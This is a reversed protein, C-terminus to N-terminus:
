LDPSAFLAIAAQIAAERYRWNKIFTLVVRRVFETVKGRTVGILCLVEHFTEMDLPIQAYNWLADLDMSDIKKCMEISKSSSNGVRKLSNVIDAYAGSYIEDVQTGAKSEVSDSAAHVGTLIFNTDNKAAKHGLRADEVIAAIQVDCATVGENDNAKEKKLRDAQLTQLTCTVSWPIAQHLIRQRLDNKDGVQGRMILYLPEKRDDFDGYQSPGKLTTPNPIQADLLDVKKLIDDRDIDESTTLKELLNARQRSLLALNSTTSLDITDDGIGLSRLKLGFCEAHFRAIVLRNDAHNGRTVANLIKVRHTNAFKSRKTWINMPHQVFNTFKDWDYVQQNVRHLFRVIMGAGGGNHGSKTCRQILEDDFFGLARYAIEALVINNEPIKRVAAMGFIAPIVRQLTTLLNGKTEKEEERKIEDIHAAAITMDHWVPQFFKWLEGIVFCRYSDVVPQMCVGTNPALSLFWKYIFFQDAPPTQFSTKFPTFLEYAFCAPMAGAACYTLALMIMARKNSTTTDFFGNGKSYVLKECSDKESERDVLMKEVDSRVDETIQGESFKDLHTQMRHMQANIEEIRELSKVDDRPITYESPLGPSLNCYDTLMQLTCVIFFYSLQKSAGSIQYDRLNVYHERMLQRMQQICKQNAVIQWNQMLSDKHVFCTFVPVPTISDQQISNNGSESQTPLWSPAHGESVGAPFTLGKCYIDELAFPHAKDTQGGQAMAGFTLGDLTHAKEYLSIMGINTRSFQLFDGKVISQLTNHTHLKSNRQCVVSLLDRIMLSMTHEPTFKKILRINQETKAKQAVLKIGMKKRNAKKTSTLQSSVDSLEAVIGDVRRANSKIMGRKRAYLKKVTATDSAHGAQLIQYDLDCIAPTDCLMTQLSAICKEKLIVIEDVDFVFPMQRILQQLSVEHQVLDDLTVGSFFDSLLEKSSMMKGAVFVKKCSREYVIPFGCNQLGGAHVWQTLKCGDMQDTVEEGADFLYDFLGPIVAGQRYVFYRGDMELLVMSCPGVQATVGTINTNDILNNIASEHARIAEQMDSMGKNEILSPRVGSVGTRLTVLKKKANVLIEAKLLRSLLDQNPPIHVIAICNLLENAVRILNDTLGKPTLHMVYLRLSNRMQKISASHMCMDGIPKGCLGIVASTGTVPSMGGIPLVTSDINPFKPLNKSFRLQSGYIIFCSKEVDIHPISIPDVDESMSQIVNLEPGTSQKLNKGDGHHEQQSDTESEFEIREPIQVTSKGAGGIVGAMTFAAIAAVRARAEGARVSASRQGTTVNDALEPQPLPFWHVRDGVRMCVAVLAHTSQGVTVQDVPIQLCKVCNSEACPTGGMPVQDAFKHLAQTGFGTFTVAVLVSEPFEAQFGITHCLDGIDGSHMAFAARKHGYTLMKMQDNAADITGLFTLSTDFFLNTKICDTVWLLNNQDYKVSFAKGAAQLQVRWGQISTLERRADIRQKFKIAFEEQNEVGGMFMQNPIMDVLASELKGDESYTYVSNEFRVGYHIPLSRLREILSELNMCLPDGFWHKIGLKRLTHMQEKCKDKQYTHSSMRRYQFPITLTYHLCGWNLDNLNATVIHSYL